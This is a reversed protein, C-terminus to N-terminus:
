DLKGKMVKGVFTELGQSQFKLLLSLIGTRILLEDIPGHLPGISGEGLQQILCRRESANIAIVQLAMMCYQPNM